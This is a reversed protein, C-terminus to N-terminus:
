KSEKTGEFKKWAKEIENMTVDVIVKSANNIVLKDNKAIKGIEAFYSGALAQEFAVKNQPAVEVIFRSPTECFLIELEQLQSDATLQSIDITAGIRSGLVSEALAVALGGDALDHTTEVIESTIAKNLKKYLDLAEDANLQPVNPYLTNSVKEYSTGGLEGNTKGLIYILNGEKKFDTTMSKTVDDIIGMLSILLTPRVSVKKGALNADNKMSDKGSILPIGYKLCTDKLGKCARVLQALKYEGDPTTESKVPDPWCFNDLASAIEPNGGLAIHARFAEDVGCAAMSYADLDSYRQALGHTVTLGRNSTPVPKVVAGDAPADAKEGVFPKVISQAQVEHDYQRVLPEKSAITSDSLLACLDENYSTKEEIKVEPRIPADWVAKLKMEPLGKHLFELELNGVMKEEYFLEVFGSDTFKGIVNSEVDRKKSLALFEEITDDGVCISMREQSESVLIQWPALGAYKLPAKDLEIKIGGSDEALEGLSSSLGGAGNDTGGKYLNKDRAEMLFDLVKKQTIPDGIQVASTPSTEDLALSSFTAGHIGDKGIRGGLMVVNDGKEITKVWADKGHIKAPIIGGTGCFVLPKGVYSDDFIFAGAVVPIGSQNGGDIIGHHVGSMVQKPHLLGKPISDPDTDPDGFCLVNTNFIPRAGRGTGIIDRNVGVIGTISGGYPDLASPSNHTEVKFCVLNEEDFQIVGSDDHFVSRLYTRTAALEDTTQKVYEKFLSKITEQHEGDHYNITANLIKHKCHESWTQAIMELEIDTPELPLNNKARVAQIDERAYYGKIALMEDITLALLMEKSLRVLDGDSLEKIEIEQVETSSEAVKGDYIMPFRAGDQWEKKNIITSVQILENHLFKNLATLEAPSLIKTKILFLRATQVRTERDLKKGTELEIAKRATLAVPDTVGPKYTIEFAFNWDELFNTGAVFDNILTRQAVNDSFISIAAKDTLDKFDTLYVDAIAADEVKPSVLTKLSSLLRKSRGDINHNKYFVEIRM